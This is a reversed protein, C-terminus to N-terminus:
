LVEEFWLLAAEGEKQTIADVTRSHRISNRLEALQEFKNTLREKDTFTETFRSWLSKNTIVGELERLDFYELQNSLKKYKELDISPNKKAARAIREQIKPAIHSPILNEDSGLSQDILKRLKLEVGEIKEDLNRLEVPLDLRQKILLSEIAGQITKKREEIFAEYDDPTFPQKMLIQQAKKSIFHTDLIKRVEEEGNSAILEPLYENPLRDTIIKRNTDSTLPTRNLISHINPDKSQKLHKNGWSAPVIHHDDLDGYQPITGTIWDRAGQLVLLNFIGNYISTGRRVERNLDLNKFQTKFEAIPSPELLDDEIWAKVDLFDRATTSEVSGSYRNTFVSAWYWLRIKRQADLQKDSPLKKVYLQLSAFAPIISVYPLYSSSIAGYEQPHSLIKLANEVAQVSECWLQEFEEVTSVLVQKKRTGDPKRIPKEQGPLLYYLYKPSCYAQKLISMVQLLYVNMRSEEVFELRSSAERWMHKLQLGKPVLLANMLDFVDLKIGRSNIQTFIDCIKEVALDKDLETYTVQYDETIRKIHNGFSQANAANQSAIKAEKEDSNEKAIKAKDAWYQEYNKIWEFLDWGGDGIIKLPFIHEEFQIKQDSMIKKLRKTFWEYNFAADYEEAIFRDVKIFYFFRSSRNPLSIDPAVFTYYIATLRQQGDLV